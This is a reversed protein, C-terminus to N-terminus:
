RSSVAQKYADRIRELYGGSKHYAASDEPKPDVRRGRPLAAKSLAEADVAADKAKLLAVAASVASGLAAGVHGIAVVPRNWIASIRRMIQDSATAGGTAFLPLKSEPAFARSTLYVAALSFDIIGGYDSNLDASKYGIRILDFAPSVPFSENDPQWMFVTTGPNHRALASEGPAYDSKAIGHLARVRDWVMAGNTRCGFTFPRGIGDYMANAFGENDMTKGDTSVMNVFSTGLSLLDSEILVKTQPNDGSGAAILCDPSLGYKTTFYPCLRGVASDPPVLGPLKDKLANAGGPLGAAAADILTQSWAKSRYDMLSTGCGNGFDWPVGPDACLVAPIFSSILQVKWTDRYTAPFQQGVRRMVAGTFRLPSDSGSIEIMAKKGGAGQRLAAAQDSTNSTKWIPAAGYSFADGLLAVLDSDASSKEKLSAFLAPARGNLYVHGHQQGSVNIAAVSSLDVGETKWDALLADLSALFMRPPQDAEGPVRPPVIYDSFSIGFRNLRKDVAYDLSKQWLIEGSDVDIIVGTLSQTSSDLGMSYRKVSM